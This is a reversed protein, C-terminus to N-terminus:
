GEDLRLLLVSRIRSTGPVECHPGLRSGSRLWFAPGRPPSCVLPDDTEHPASRVSQREPGSAGVRDTPASIALISPLAPVTALTRACVMATHRRTVRGRIRDRCPPLYERSSM